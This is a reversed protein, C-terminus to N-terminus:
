LFVLLHQIYKHGSRAIGSTRYRQAEQAYFIGPDGDKVWFSFHAINLLELQAGVSLVNMGKLYITSKVIALM